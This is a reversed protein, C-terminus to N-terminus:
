PKPLIIQRSESCSFMLISYLTIDKINITLLKGYQPYVNLLAFLLPFWKRGELRMCTVLGIVYNLLVFFLLASATETYLTTVCVNCNSDPDSCYKDVGQTYCKKYDRTDNSWIEYHRCYQFTVSFDSKVGCVSSHTLNNVIEVNCYQDPGGEKQCKKYEEQHEPQEGKEKICYYHRSVGCVTNSSIREPTCYQDAGIKDCKKYEERDQDVCGPVGRYLKIILVLDTGVDATPLIVSLILLPLVKPLIKKVKQCRTLTQNEEMEATMM